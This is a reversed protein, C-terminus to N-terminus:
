LYILSIKKDQTLALLERKKNMDNLCTDLFDDAVCLRQISEAVAGRLENAAEM